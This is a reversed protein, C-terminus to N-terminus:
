NSLPFIQCGGSPLLASPRRRRQCYLQTFLLPGHVYQRKSRTHSLKWSQMFPIHILLQEDSDSAHYLGEADRFTQLCWLAIAM